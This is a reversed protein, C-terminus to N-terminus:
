LIYKQGTRKDKSIYNYFNHNLAQICARAGLYSGGIGIVIFVQSDDRIKKSTEQIRIFEEKDYDKPLDVWGTYEKGLVRRNM